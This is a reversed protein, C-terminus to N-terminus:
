DMSCFFAHEGTDLRLKLRPLVLRGAQAEPSETAIRSLEQYLAIARIRAPDARSRSWWTEYALALHYLQEKRFPTEPYDVLFKEGRRIVVRFCDPGQCESPVACILRQLLLFARQGWRTELFEKAARRLLARDYELTGSYHGPGTYRIGYSALRNRIGIEAPALLSGLRVTLDDAAVLMAARRSRDGENLRGLLSFLAAATDRETKVREAESAPRKAPPPYLAGLEGRLDATNAPHSLRTSSEFAAQLGRKQEREELVERRVAILQVGERIGWPAVYNRNRHLFITVPGARWSIGPDPRNAGIEFLHDPPTGPGYARTLRQRLSQEVEASMAPYVAALRFDARRLLLIPPTGDVPYYFTEAIVDAMPQSCAYAYGYLGGRLDPHAAVASCPSASGRRQPPYPSEWKVQQLASWIKESLAAAPETAPSKGMEVTVAPGSRGQYSVRVETTGPITVDQPMKFNILGAKVYLLGAAINGVRVETDCLRTPFVQTEVLTQHPRLPHPSERRSPDAPGTCPREPGLHEGYISVLMGPALPSPQSAGNPLITRASYAPALPQAQALM